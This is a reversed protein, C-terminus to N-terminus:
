SHYRQSICRSAVCRLCLSRRSVPLHVPYSFSGRFLSCLPRTERGPRLEQNEKFRPLQGCCRVSEVSAYIAPRLPVASLARQASLARRRPRSSPRPAFRPAFASPLWWPHTTPLALSLVPARPLPLSASLSLNIIYSLWLWAASGSLSEEAERKQQWCNISIISRYLVGCQRRVHVRTYTGERARTSALTSYTNNEDPYRRPRYWPCRM